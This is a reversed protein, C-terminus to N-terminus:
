IDQRMTSRVNFRCFDYLVLMKLTLAIILDIRVIKINRFIVKISSAKIFTSFKVKARLGIPIYDICPSALM